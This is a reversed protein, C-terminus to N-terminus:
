DKFPDFTDAPAMAVGVPQLEHLIRITGSHHSLVEPLRKYARPAEDAGGGRLEIGKAALEARVTPFDILGPKVVKGKRRKGAAQTRSMARGAGHVTSYLAERSTQSDVGELIVAPEGMTAGVFGLQGPFAPTAGKRVVWFTEGGHEEFWGLNHNNHVELGATAGLIRLVEDVVVDRGAYAYRGALEMAALYAQGTESHLPFVAPPSMMDSARAGALELFATATKHGFGRSGFHVGIWVRDSEDRFLDVYHNGAGVTGLQAAATTALARQPAFDARRIEDIVPHDAARGDSRGVGFSIRAFVEDMIRPMDGQIQEYLLDTRVAKNGCGIDFGVGSPSVHERYAVVGGIPMSYGLHGDACLVGEAGDEVEVCQRLQQRTREDHEGFVRM